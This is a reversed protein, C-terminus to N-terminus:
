EQNFPVFSRKAAKCVPCTWADLLEEFSVKPPIDNVPDGQAPDYIYQCITCIWSQM